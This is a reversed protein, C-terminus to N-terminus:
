FAAMEDMESESLEDVSDGDDEWAMGPKNFYKAQGTGADWSLTKFSPLQHTLIKVVKPEDMQEFLVRAQRQMLLVFQIFGRAYGEECITSHSTGPSDSAMVSLNVVVSKLRLKSTNAKTNANVNTNTNTTDPLTVKLVQPCISRMRVHLTELTGLLISITSCLHEESASLHQMGVPMDLVLRNLHKLSLFQRITFAELYRELRDATGLKWLYGTQISLSSLRRCEQALAAIQGMERDLDQTYKDVLSDQKEQSEALEYGLGPEPLFAGRSRGIRLCFTELQKKVMAHRRKMTSTGALQHLSHEDSTIHKFYVPLAFEHWKKCVSLRRVDQHFFPWDIEEFICELTEAPLDLLLM